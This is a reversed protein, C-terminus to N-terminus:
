PQIERALTQSGLEGGAWGAIIASFFGAGGGAHVIRIGSERFKPIRRGRATEPLGEAIGLAGRVLDDGAMTTLEILRQRLRERSWGAERFVRSHDPSVVLIADFAMVAKPPWNTDM